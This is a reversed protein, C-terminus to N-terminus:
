PCGTLSALRVVSGGYDLVYLAGDAGQTVDIPHALGGPGLVDEAEGAIWKGALDQTLRARLVRRGREVGYESGWLTLYLADDCGPAHAVAFGTAGGHVPLPVLPAPLSAKGRYADPWGLAAGPAVQVLRDAGPGSCGPVKGVCCEPGNDTALLEGDSTFAVDYANRLGRAFVEAVPASALAPARLITAAIPNPEDCVDCSSGAGFYIFGDPGLALGNNTHEPGSPLGTLWPTPNDYGGGPAAVMVDIRSRSAVLVREGAGFVFLGTSEGPTDIVFTGGQVFDSSFLRVAKLADPAGELIFLRGRSDFQLQTPQILGQVVVHAEFGALPALPGLEPEPPHDNCEDKRCAAFAVLCALGALEARM